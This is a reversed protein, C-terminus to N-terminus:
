KTRLTIGRLETVHLCINLVCASFKLFQFLIYFTVLVQYNFHGLMGSVSERNICSVFQLGSSCSVNCFLMSILALHDVAEKM